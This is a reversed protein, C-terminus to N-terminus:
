GDANMSQVHYQKIQTMQALTTVHMSARLKSKYWGMFSFMREPGAAHPVISFLIAALLCIQQVSEQRVARRWDQPQMRPKYPRELPATQDKYDKLQDM